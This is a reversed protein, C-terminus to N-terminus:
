NQTTIYCSPLMIPTHKPINSAMNIKLHISARAHNLYVINSMGKIPNPQLVCHSSALRLTPHNQTGLVKGYDYRLESSMDRTTLDIIKGRFSAINM